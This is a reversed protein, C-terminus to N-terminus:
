DVFILTTFRELSNGPAPFSGTRDSSNLPNRLDGRNEIIRTESSDVQWSRPFFGRWNRESSMVAAKLPVGFSESILWGADGQHVSVVVGHAVDYGHTLM